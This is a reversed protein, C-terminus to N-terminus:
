FGDKESIAATAAAHECGGARVFMTSKAGHGRMYKGMCEQKGHAAEM